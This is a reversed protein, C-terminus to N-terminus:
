ASRAGAWHRVMPSKRVMLTGVVLDHVMQRRPTFLAFALSVPWSVWVTIFFVLTHLFALPGNLPAGRTPTLVIDMAQMGYTARQPSGLTAAYYLIVAGPILVLLALWALGFTLFGAILGVLSLGVVVTGILVADIIFALVRRTLLGDFLEPATSPDPLRNM